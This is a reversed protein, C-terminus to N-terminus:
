STAVRREARELVADGESMFRKISRAAQRVRQSNEVLALRVHGDGYEGFGLGPSVAVHAEKLLLKSFELSGLHAFRPPIPAWAFMTAPPPP